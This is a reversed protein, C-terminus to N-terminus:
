DVLVTDLAKNNKIDNAEVQLNNPVLPATPAIRNPRQNRTYHSAVDM